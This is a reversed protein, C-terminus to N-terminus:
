IIECFIVPYMSMKFSFKLKMNMCRSVLTTIRYKEKISAELRTDSAHRFHGDIAGVIAGSFPWRVSALGAGRM